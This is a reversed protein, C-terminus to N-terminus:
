GEQKQGLLETYLRLIAAAVQQWDYTAARQLGHARLRDRLQADRLLDALRQALM